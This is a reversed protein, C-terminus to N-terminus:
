AGDLTGEGWAEAADHVWPESQDLRTVLAHAVDRISVMGVARGKEMVPLHRCGFRAMLRLAETIDDDPEVSGPAFTMIDKLRATDPDVGAAVVRVTIDRETVIGLLSGDEVVAVASVEHAALWRAAERVDIDPGLSVIERRAVVDPIIKAQM